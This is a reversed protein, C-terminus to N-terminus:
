DGGERLYREREDERLVDAKMKMHEDARLEDSAWKLSRWNLNVAATVVDRDARLEESAHQMVDPGGNMVARLVVDRDRRLEDSCHALWGGRKEVVSLMVYKDGRLEMPVGGIFWDTEGRLEGRLCADHSRTWWVTGWHLLHERILGIDGRLEEAAWVLLVRKSRRILGVVVAKNARVELPAHELMRFDRKIQQILAYGSSAKALLFTFHKLLHQLLDAQGAGAPSAARSFETLDFLPNGLASKVGRPSFLMSLHAPSLGAEVVQKVRSESVEGLAVYVLVKRLNAVGPLEGLARLPTGAPHTVLFASADTGAALAAPFGLLAAPIPPPKERVIRRAEKRLGFPLARAWELWGPPYSRQVLATGNRLVRAFRHRDRASLILMTHFVLDDPLSAM